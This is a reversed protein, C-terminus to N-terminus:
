TTSKSDYGTSRTDPIIPLRSASYAPPHPQVCPQHHGSAKKVKAMESDEASAGYQRDGVGRPETHGSADADSTVRVGNEPKDRIVWM